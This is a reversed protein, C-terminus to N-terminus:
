TMLLCKHAIVHVSIGFHCGRDQFLVSRSVRMRWDRIEAKKLEVSFDGRELESMVLDEEGEEISELESTAADSLCEWGGGTGGMTSPIQAMSTLALDLAILSIIMRRTSLARPAM